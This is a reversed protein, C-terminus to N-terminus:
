VQIMLAITAIPCFYRLLRLGVVTGFHTGFHPFLSLISPISTNIFWSLIKSQISKWEELCAEYDDNTVITTKSANADTTAKSQPLPM